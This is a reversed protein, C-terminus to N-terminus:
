FVTEGSPLAAQARVRQLPKVVLRNLRAPSARKFLSDLVASEAPRLFGLRQGSGGEALFGASRLVHRPL